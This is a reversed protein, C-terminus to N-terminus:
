RFFFVVLKQSSSGAKSATVTAMAANNNPVLTPVLKNSMPLSSAVDALNNVYSVSVARSFGAYNGPIVTINDPFYINSSQNENNYTSILNQISHTSDAMYSLIEETKAKALNLLIIKTKDKDLIDFSTSCVSLIGFLAVTLIMTAIVIEILSLGGKNKFSGRKM